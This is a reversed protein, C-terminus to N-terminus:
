EDGGHFAEDRQERMERPVGGYCEVFAKIMEEFPFEAYTGRDRVYEMHKRGSVDYPQLLADSHGDFELPKTGFRECLALNFAPTAKLWRGELLLEAFGHFVFLDTRMQARLKDSSLHNKVDAFGLRAPIGLSRATAALLIAKPVCFNRSCGAVNSARYTDRDPSFSYPDYLIGDRVAYFLRVAREVDGTADGAAREAYAAVDPHDCDLFYTPALLAALDDPGAVSSSDPTEM